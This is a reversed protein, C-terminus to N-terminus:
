NNGIKYLVWVSPLAFGLYLEIDLGIWM